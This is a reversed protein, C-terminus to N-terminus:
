AQRTHNWVREVSPQTKVLEALTTKTFYDTVERNISELLGGMICERGDCAPKGLLCRSPELHGDIAEYVDLLTIEQPPRAINLGGSPGRHTLVLHTKSLRQCVKALHNESVQLKSAIQHVSIPQGDSKALIVMTHLGLAAADSMRLLNQM